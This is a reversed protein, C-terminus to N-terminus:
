REVQVPARTNKDRVLVEEQTVLDPAAAWIGVTNNELRAHTLTTNKCSAANVQFGPGGSATVTVDTFRNGVSGTRRNKDVQDVFIGARGSNKVQLHEFTNRSSNRMFIGHSGNHFLRLHSLTNHDFNIDTSIGASRNHHLYLRTFRSDETQYCALGDFENDSASFDEVVLHRCEKETVLGGSRCHDAAVRLVLIDRARRIVLGSSRIATLSGTDCAGNWCEDHQHTRNGDIRLDAVCVSRVTRRPASAEDGVILVPCNALDGLRLLTAPGAGRLTINDQRIIVPLTIRYTGPSLVVEGGDKGLAALAKNIGPSGAAPPVHLIQRPAPAALLATAFGLGLWLLMLKSAPLNIPLKSIM